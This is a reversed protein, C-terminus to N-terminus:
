AAVEEIVGAEAQMFGLAKQADSCARWLARSDTKLVRLWHALYAAHDDRPTATIGLEACVFVATLEAVLEEMAYSESGFRGSLDRDLRSNHGTWHGHEHALTAYFASPESFQEAKPMSIRDTTPSYCARDGSYTVASGLAEFFRDAAEHREASDMPEAVPAEWGDVQESNFVTFASAFMRGCKSCREDKGHDKCDIRGWKIMTTGKEGKRVQAGLTEWQKYTAWWQSTFGGLAASIMGIMTNGGRYALGTEANKPIGEGLEIWPKTWEGHERAEIRRIFEATMSEFTQEAKTVKGAGTTNM